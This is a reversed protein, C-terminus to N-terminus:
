WPSDYTSCDWEERSANAYCHGSFIRCRGDLFPGPNCEANAESMKTLSALDLNGSNSEGSLSMTFFLAAVFAFAGTIKLVKKM